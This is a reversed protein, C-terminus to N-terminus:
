LIPQPIGILAVSEREIYNGVCDPEIISEIEAVAINFIEESFTADSHASFRDPKPAYFEAGYVGASQLRFVSAVALGEDDIFKEHLDVALLM